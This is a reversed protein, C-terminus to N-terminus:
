NNHSKLPLGFIFFLISNCLDHADCRSRYGVIIIIKGGALNSDILFILTFIFTNYLHMYSDFTNRVHIFFVSVLKTRAWNTPSSSFDDDDISDVFSCVLFFFQIILFIFAISSAPNHARWFSSFFFFFFLRMKRNRGGCRIFYPM